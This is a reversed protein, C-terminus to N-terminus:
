SKSNNVSNKAGSNALFEHKLLGGSTNILKNEGERSKKVSYESFKSM